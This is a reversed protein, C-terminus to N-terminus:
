DQISTCPHRVIIHAVTTEVRMMSVGITMVFEHIRSQVVVNARIVISQNITM